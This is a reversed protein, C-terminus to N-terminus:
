RQNSKNDEAEFIHAEEKLFREMQRAEWKKSFVKDVAFVRLAHIGLGMGWFLPTLLMYNQFVAKGSTWNSYGNGFAILLNIAFYVTLHIRFGKIEEVRKRARKYKLEYGQNM